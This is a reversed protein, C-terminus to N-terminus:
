AAADGSFHRYRRWSLCLNCATALVLVFLFLISRQAVGGVLMIIGAPLAGLLLWKANHSIPPKTQSRAQAIDTAGAEPKVVRSVGRPRLVSAM